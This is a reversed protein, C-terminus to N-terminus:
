RRGVTVVGVLAGYHYSCYVIGSCGRYIYNQHLTVPIQTDPNSCGVIGIYMSPYSSIPPLQPFCGPLVTPLTYVRDTRTAPTLRSHTYIVHGKREDTGGSGRCQFCPRFSHKPSCRSQSQLTITVRSNPGRCLAAVRM